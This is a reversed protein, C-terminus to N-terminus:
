PASRSQKPRSLVELRIAAEIAALRARLDADVQQERDIKKAGWLVTTHDRGGMQRGIAPYSRGTLRRAIYMAVQRPRSVARRREPGRIDSPRLQYHASVVLICESIMPPPAWDVFTEDTATEADCNRAIPSFDDIM